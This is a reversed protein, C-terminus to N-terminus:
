YIMYENSNIILKKYIMTYKTAPTPTTSRVNITKTIMIYMLLCLRDFLYIMWIFLYFLSFTRMKYVYMEDDRYWTRDRCYQAFHWHYFKDLVACILPWHRFHGRFYEKPVSRSQLSWAPLLHLTYRPAPVYTGCFRLVYVM